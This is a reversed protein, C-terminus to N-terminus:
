AHDGADHFKTTDYQEDPIHLRNGGEVPVDQPEIGCRILLERLFAEQSEVGSGALQTQVAGGTRVPAPLLDAKVYVAHAGDVFRQFGPAQTQALQLVFAPFRAEVDGVRFAIANLEPAVILRLHGADVAAHLFTVSTFISSM